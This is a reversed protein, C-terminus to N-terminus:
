GNNLNNSKKESVLHYMVIGVLTTLALIIFIYTFPIMAKNSLSILNLKDLNSNLLFAVISIGLANATRVTFNFFGIGTGIETEPLFSIAKTLLPGFSLAYGGTILTLAILVHTTSIYAQFGGYVFGAMILLAGTTLATKMGIRNIIVVM